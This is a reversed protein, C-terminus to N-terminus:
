EFTEHDGKLTIQWDRRCYYCLGDTDNVDTPNGCVSCISTDEGNDDLTNSISDKLENEV